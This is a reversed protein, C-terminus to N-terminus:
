EQGRSLLVLWRRFLDEPHGTPLAIGFLGWHVGGRQRSSAFSRLVRRDRRSKKLVM